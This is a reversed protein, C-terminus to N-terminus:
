LSQREDRMTRLPSSDKSYLDDLGKLTFCSTMQLSLSKAFTFTWFNSVRKM